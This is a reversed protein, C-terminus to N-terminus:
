FLRYYRDSPDILSRPYFGTSKPARRQEVDSRTARQGMGVTPGPEHEQKSKANAYAQLRLAPDGDAGCLPPHPASYWQPPIPYTSLRLLRIPLCVTLTSFEM